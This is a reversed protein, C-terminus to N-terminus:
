KRIGYGGAFRSVESTLVFVNGECLREVDEIMKKVEKRPLAIIVVHSPEKAGHGDLVTYGKEKTQLYEEVAQIYKNNVVLQLNSTGLAIMSELKSGCFIGLAYGLCYSLLWAYNSNLDSIVSACVLGWILCEIFALVSAVTRQGKVMSVTKISQISIEVVKAACILLCFLGQSVLANM